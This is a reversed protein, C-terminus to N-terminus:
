DQMSEVTVADTLPPHAERSFVRRVAPWKLPALKRTVYWIGCSLAFGAIVDVVWHEGLYVVAFMMMCGYLVGLVRAWRGRFWVAFIALWTEAVHISPMAGVDNTGILHLGQAYTDPHFVLSTVRYIPPIYGDRAAMWPPATPVLRYVVLGVVFMALVAVVYRSFYEPRRRGLYLAIAIPAVFYSIYTGVMLLTFPDHRSPDPLVHQLYVSAPTGFLGDGFRIPYHYYIPRGEDAFSRLIAFAVFGSAYASWWGWRRLMSISDSPAMPFALFLVIMLGLFLAIGIPSPGPYFRWLLLVGYGAVLLRFLNVTFRGANKFAPGM